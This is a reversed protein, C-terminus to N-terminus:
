GGVSGVGNACATARLLISRHIRAGEEGEDPEVAHAFSRMRVLAAPRDSPSNRLAPPEVVAAGELREAVEDVDVPAPAVTQEPYVHSLGVHPVV